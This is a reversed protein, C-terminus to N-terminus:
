KRGKFFVRRTRGVKGLDGVVSEEGGGGGKKEGGGRRAKEMMEDVWAQKRPSIDVIKTKPGALGLSPSSGEEAAAWSSRPSNRMSPESSPTQPNHLVAPSTQQRALRAAPSQKASSSATPSMPRSGPKSRPSPNSPSSPLGTIDFPRDSVSRQGHHGAYERLYEGLDAWGGGIRVMVREGGEGVLRVFLKIPATKGTQHLHYLKIDPETTTSRSQSSKPQAPALTMSPLPNSTQRRKLRWAPLRVKPTRTESPSNSHSVEPADPEPGSTLRIQTPLETLISNIREELQDDFNKSVPGAATRPTEVHGAARGGSPDNTKTQRIIVPTAGPSLDSVQEFRHASRPAVPPPSHYSLRDGAVDPQRDSKQAPSTPGRPVAPPPHYPLPQRPPHFQRDSTQASPSSPVSVPPAPHYLPHRKPMDLRSDISQRSSSPYQDKTERSTQLPRTNRFPEPEGHQETSSPPFRSPQVQVLDPDSLSLASSYSGSRQVQIRRIEHKPVPEFSQASASRARPQGFGRSHKEDKAVFDSPISSQHVGAGDGEAPPGLRRFAIEASTMHERSLSMSSRVRAPTGIFEAVVASQIKPSSRNSSYTSALFESDSSDSTADSSDPREAKPLPIGIYENLPQAELNNALSGRLQARLQELLAGRSRAPDLDFSKGSSDSSSAVVTDEKDITEVPELRVRDARQPTEDLQAGMALNSTPHPHDLLRDLDLIEDTPDHTDDKDTLDRTYDKDTPDQTYDNDNPDRTYEKDTPDQTYDRELRENRLEKNMALREAKVVWASYQNEMDDLGDIWADPLTDASGELLDLMRDLKRGLQAIQDQLVARIDSFAKWSFDSRPKPHETDHAGIAISASVMSERGSDLDVLFSPVQRLVLLRTSWTNLLSELRSVTPLAQVITATIVATFDDIEDYDTALGFSAQQDRLSSRRSGYKWHASRVYDKLDEIELTQMDDRIMEVREEYSQVLRLSLAGRPQEGVSASGSKRIADPSLGRDMHDEQHHQARTNPLEELLPRDFGPWPWAQIEAYWEQVKQGTLAAKIGWAKESTSANAVCEQIFGKIPKDGPRMADGAQLAELTVSPSLESLLNVFGQTTLHQRRSPSRLPSSSAALRPPTPFRHTPNLTKPDM